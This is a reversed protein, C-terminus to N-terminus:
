PVQGHPSQTKPQASKETSNSILWHIERHIYPIEKELKLYLELKSSKLQNQTLINVKVQYHQWTGHSPTLCVQPRLVWQFWKPNSPHSLQVAKLRDSSFSFTTWKQTVLFWIISDMMPIPMEEHRMCKGNKKEATLSSQAEIWPTSQWHHCHEKLFIRSFNNPLGNNTRRRTAADFQTQDWCAEVHYSYSVQNDLSNIPKLFTSLFMYLVCVCTSLYISLYIPLYISLCISLYISLYVYAYVYVYFTKIWTENSAFNGTKRPNELHSRPTTM